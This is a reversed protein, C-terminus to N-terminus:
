TRPASSRKVREQVELDNKSESDSVFFYFINLYVIIWYDPELLIFLEINIQIDSINYHTLPISAGYHHQINKPTHSVVDPRRCNVFKLFIPQFQLTMQPSQTRDFVMGTMSGNIHPVTKKEENTQELLNSEPTDILPMTKRCLPM